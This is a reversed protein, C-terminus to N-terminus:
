HRAGRRGFVFAACGIAVVTFAALVIADVALGQPATQYGHFAHQFAAIAYTLPSIAAIAGPIAGLWNAPGFPGSLFFLPLVAAISLPIAQQRRRVLTGVLVGLALFTALILLGFGVVELPHLPRVGIFLVVVALLLLASASALVAAGLVKGVGITLRSVPALALEKITGFEYDRATNVSGQLQSALMLGAVMISVALYPIYGTDQAQVDSERATVVVQEPFADAYFSTISLPVARRIDNTFDVNLNNVEVPIEIRERAALAADFGQPVTVVAVIGGSRIEREADAPTATHIIFSHAGDMAQVFREALPGHDNMVVAIPAQGGSIAFLLFLLLFNIPILVGIIAFLPERLTLRIDTAAVARVVRLDHRLSM